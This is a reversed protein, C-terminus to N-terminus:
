EDLEFWDLSLSDVIEFNFDLELVEITLNENILIACKNETPHEIVSSWYLTVNGTLGMMSSVFNNYSTIEEKNGIYYM